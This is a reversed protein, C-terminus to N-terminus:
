RDVPSGAPPRGRARRRQVLAALQARRGRARRALSSPRLGTVVFRRLIVGSSWLALLARRRGLAEYVPRAFPERAAHFAVAIYPYRAEFRSLGLSRATDTITLGTPRLSRHITTTPVTVLEGLSALEAVMLWDDAIRNRPASVREAAARRTLGYFVSNDDVQRYYAIIRRVPDIGRVQVDNGHAEVIDDRYLCSTGAALVVGPDAELVALCREVYDVDLWDDDALWLVYDGTSLDRAAAFNATAGVNVPQRVVRVRPDAAAIGALLTATGDTSANDSVVIELNPYTQARASTVARALQDARNYTPIAISVVPRQNDGGSPQGGTM